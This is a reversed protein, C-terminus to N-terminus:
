ENDEGQKIGLQSLPRAASGESGADTHQTLSARVIFRQPASGIFHFPFCTVLTLSPEARGELVAVDSPAVIQIERVVYTDTGSLTKLQIEDGAAIGKLGRFFGDRHGAIGINGEEGPRATGAILGVARNLTLADTGDLVPVALHIKPIQLVALPANGKRFANRRDIDGSSKSEAGGPTSRLQPLDGPSAPQSRRPEAFSKLDARSSLSSEIRAAGFMAILVIGSVLLVGEIWLWVNRRSNSSRRSTHSSLM